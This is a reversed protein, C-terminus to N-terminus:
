PVLQSCCPSEVSCPKFPLWLLPLLLLLLLLETRLGLRKNVQQVQLLCVM